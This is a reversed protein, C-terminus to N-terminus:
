PSCAWPALFCFRVDGVSLPQSPLESPLEAFDGRDAAWRQLFWAGSGPTGSPFLRFYDLLVASRRGGRRFCSSHLRLYVTALRLCSGAGPVRSTKDALWGVPISICCYFLAFYFGSM